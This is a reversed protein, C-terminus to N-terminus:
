LRQWEMRRNGVCWWPRWDPKFDPPRPDPNSFQPTTYTRSTWYISTRLVHMIPPIM